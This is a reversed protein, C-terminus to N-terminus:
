KYELNPPIFQNILYKEWFGSASLSHMSVRPDLRMGTNLYSRHQREVWNQVFGLVEIEFNCVESGIVNWSNEILKWVLLDISTRVKEETEDGDVLAMNYQREIVAITREDRAPLQWNMLTAPTGTYYTLLNHKNGISSQRQARGAQLARGLCCVFRLETRQWLGLFSLLTFM